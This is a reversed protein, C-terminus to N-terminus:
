GNREEKLVSACRPCVNPFETDLGTNPDVKWCRECKEGEAKVVKIKGNRGDFGNDVIGLEFQSVILIDAIFTSDYSSIVEKLFDDSLEVIVKAELSNGILKEKRKEELAKLVDDRFDLIKDWKEELEKDIYNENYSPWTEAFITEYTKLEDLHDYVEEATFPLIPAMMKTLALVTEYLVTQASRRLKSDKGEVYLRDKIIDLYTASMDITCFNNLLYHVKYFEYNEYAKTIERILKHLKLIAWRDIELMDEYAISDKKPDYDYINGLLFRLTNRLKRYTEVQQQLINYSIKIDVTYDASAVWLRLIDAGYKDVVEKPNVVNGLSKSMKRGEEDKIFGHTLVSKYPAIGHKAVSLFISSQFWGRHQDSGELYLDVPFKKLDETSNVVAEFSAGSDIWVDLIDEEKEFKSSGCKSCTIGHPLLDEINKEFWANTGNEKVIEIFNEIIESNFIVEGCNKCRVAPIPIGWARQRSIVWDPREKVMSTIRNEGWKPIWNVEKIQELVKDRYKNKELDIFWQETARFIVPNKCRWCHPYSHTIKGAAVLFHSDNLDKIIVKNADWIKLGEYKGAEKTFYGKDDVPSIMPLNYKLGTKYDDVGHGPATHVCGTGDELTVYDALVILSERNMFPHFAKRGELEKGKYTEIIEFNSINAEQLTRKILDKALIWYEGDVKIKSYDYDPHVAIATNAPLTWPTTTWIIIYTEKEDKMPFKVYISDSTHDHYEVEAEALATKCETCWYIPKKGRYVNGSDVLSKLVELVKAEYKPDLTLYPTDWFGIVGLRKFSNRQIDVFKLAYEECIKRIQLKNLENVKEGLQTTVNHEIPLGHTDWGPIYPTNFGKLTKYKLVIDKLIKNLATGIHIDGNAYPPGDHLIFKECDKRHNKIYNAIDIEEWKKLITPEKEVLNAKMKFNTKPLNITDKYDM